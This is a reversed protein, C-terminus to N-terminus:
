YLEGGKEEYLINTLNGTYQFPSKLSVLCCCSYTKPLFLLTWKGVACVEREVFQAVNIDYKTIYM